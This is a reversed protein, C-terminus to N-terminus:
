STPATGYVKEYLEQWNAAIQTQASRLSMQGSCVLSHLKNELRDKVKYGPRANAKEPFLNAPENSGGLELSVIHDIELTRGYLRQAMGYAAEIAYKESQPVDRVESTRFSASCIVAKTLGSYYAGPSCRRDPNAGPACDSTKTQRRLLVTRGLRVTKSGGSTSASGSGSSSASGDLWEAVGGHHSCAGQHHKAFSYTGDRCRATAGPPASGASSIAIALGFTLAVALVLYWRRM